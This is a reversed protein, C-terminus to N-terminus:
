QYPLVTIEVDVVGAEIMHLERAAGLSLDIIRNGVFPGRDNVRVIVTRGNSLNKVELWTNFPLTKHACTLGNMDFVEGNSTKKGHFDDAYYSAQGYIKTGSRPRKEPTKVTKGSKVSKTDAPQQITPTPRHTTYRPSPSCSIFIFIIALTTLANKVM